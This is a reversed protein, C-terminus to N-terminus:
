NSLIMDLIDATDHFSMAIHKIKGEEKLKKVIEFTNCEKHKPYSKRTLCHFLYFDFYDVGCIKLQSEFLPIIDEEKEFYWDSLKNALVFDERNYRASLCKGIAIESKGSIYGHATDFYNFGANIFADIMKNFENYYGLLENKDRWSSEVEILDCVSYLAEAVIKPLSTKGTGSMGQLISLKTTGLGAIFTAIEEHTYYLHLRSDRAYQVIFDVLKPLTPSAFLSQEREELKLQMEVFKEDLESFTPCADTVNASENFTNGGGLSLGSGGKVEFTHPIQAADEEEIRKELSLAKTYPNRIFLVLLLICSGFFYLLSSSKVEYKILDNIDKVVNKLIESIFDINIGQVIKYYQGFLGILLTVSVSLFITSLAIKYYIKSKKFYALLVLFLVFLLGLFFVFAFYALLRQSESTITSTKFILDWGKIEYFATEGTKLEYHVKIINSLVSGMGLLISVLSYAFLEVKSSNLISRLIDRSEKDDEGYTNSEFEKQKNMNLLGKFIAYILAIIIAYVIPFISVNSYTYAGKIQNITPFGWCFLTYIFTVITCTMTATNVRNEVSKGDKLAMISKLISFIGIIIMVINWVFMIIQLILFDETYANIFDKKIWSIASIEIIGEPTDICAIPMNLLFLVSLFSLLIIAIYILNRKVVNEEKSLKKIIDM